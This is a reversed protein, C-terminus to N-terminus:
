HTTQKCDLRMDVLQSTSRLEGPDKVGPPLHRVEVGLPSLQFSTKLALGEAGRDLILYRNKFRPLLSHLLEVQQSTPASTFFCTAVVGLQHGLVNLRLSDFPGECLCITDADSKILDDFWLLYHSIPGVAPSLGEREAREKNTTLTKYRLEATSYISRGTWSMLKGFYSVPFIIRGQFPGQTCYGMNYRKTCVWIERETFGRRLMYNVFRKASPLNKFPRFAFPLMLDQQKIPKSPELQRRVHSMFDIPISTTGNVLFEAQEFTCKLLVQVLRVPSRGSHDHNRWCRWGKGELNISLHQSQDNSGCWPCKIAINGRVVSPGSSTYEINHQDFFSIWGFAM